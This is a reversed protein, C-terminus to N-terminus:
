KPAPPDPLQAFFNRLWAANNSCVFLSGEIRLIYGTVIGERSRISAVLKVVEGQANLLTARSNGPVEVKSWDIAYEMPVAPRAGAAECAMKDLPPKVAVAEVEPHKCATGLLPLFCLM